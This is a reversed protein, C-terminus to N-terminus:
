GVMDKTVVETKIEHIEEVLPGAIALGMPIRVL